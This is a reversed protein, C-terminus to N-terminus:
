KKLNKWIERLKNLCRLKQTRVVTENKYGMQNAISEASYNDYYFLQLLTDCPKGLRRIAQALLEQEDSIEFPDIFDSILLSNSNETYAENRTDRITNLLKRKGIGFLYTKITSSLKTLKGNKVNTYFVILSEQFIDESVSVDISYYKTVWDLWEGRHQNYLQNLCSTDGNQLLELIKEDKIKKV